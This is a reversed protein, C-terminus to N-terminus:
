CKLTGQLQLLYGINMSLAVRSRFHFMTRDGKNVALHGDEDNGSAVAEVLFDDRVYLLHPRTASADRCKDGLAVRLYLLKGVM